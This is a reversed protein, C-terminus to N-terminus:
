YDRVGGNSRITLFLQIAELDGDEILDYNDGVILMVGRYVLMKEENTMNYNEIKVLAKQIKTM